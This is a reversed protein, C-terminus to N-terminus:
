NLNSDPSVQSLAALAKLYSLEQGPMDFRM